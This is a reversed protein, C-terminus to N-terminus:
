PHCTAEKRPFSIKEIKLLTKKMELGSSFGGLEGNKRIVRHCPILIPIPNKGIANAVARIAKAHGSERAVWSYSVLHGYPIKELTKWVSREFPTGTLPYLSVDIKSSEGLAYATLGKWVNSHKLLGNTLSIGLTGKKLYNAVTKRKEPQNGFYFACIGEENIIVGTWGIHPLL